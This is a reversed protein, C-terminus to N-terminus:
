TAGPTCSTCRSCHDTIVGATSVLNKGPDKKERKYASRQMSLEFVGFPINMQPEVVSISAIEV